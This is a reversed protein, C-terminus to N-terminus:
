NEFKKHFFNLANVEFALYPRSLFFDTTKTKAWSGAKSGSM